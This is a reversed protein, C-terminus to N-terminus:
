ETPRRRRARERREFVHWECMCDVSAPGSIRHPVPPEFGFIPAPDWGFEREM